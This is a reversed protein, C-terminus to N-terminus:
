KRFYQQYQYPLERYPSLQAFGFRNKQRVMVGPHLKGRRWAYLCSEKNQPQWEIFGSDHHVEFGFEFVDEELDWETPCMGIQATKGVTETNNSYDAYDSIYVAIAMFHIDLQRWLLFEREKRDLFKWSTEFTWNLMQIVKNGLDEIESKWELAKKPRADRNLYDNTAFKTKQAQRAIFGCSPSVPAAMLQSAHSMVTKLLGKLEKHAPTAKSPFFVQQGIYVLGLGSNDVSGCASVFTGFSAVTNNNLTM